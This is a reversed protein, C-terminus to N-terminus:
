RGEAPDYDPSPETPIPAGTAARWEDLLAKLEAVKEPMEEALDNSEGIDSRLDYLETTGDEFFEILKYDGLRVAGAPTTRWPGAVSRDAELYAPFHWFLPREPLAGDGTLVPLLTVGDLVQGDPSPANAIELITPYLDTGIVRSDTVGGPEVEGPWRVILPVRIGGEYLMGKSGRLPAMSTAPGFGGNDSYFVVATNDALGLDDLVALVRGVSEDVSQIMAAYTPNAQGGEAQKERYHAVYEQKAEIPTHVAYHSLYLFFPREAQAEIFRIAEDTLRDTLYEGEHGTEVLDSLERAGRQYPYFYGPPSGFERGAVNVDFGQDTPLYGAGGLHWKGFHGTVYGASKLAEAVTVVELDLHTQNEPPVLRRQRAEGREASAVTFIGHRPPYQGSMLSARSPACNPANAYANTFLMGREALGDINPTEYYASGMVGLDRWGLDDIYLLVINPPPPAEGGCGLTAAGALLAGLGVFLPRGLRM